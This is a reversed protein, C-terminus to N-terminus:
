RRTEFVKLIGEKNEGVTASFELDLGTVQPQKARVTYDATSTSPHGSLIQM